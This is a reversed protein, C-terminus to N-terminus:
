PASKGPAPHHEIADRVRRHFAAECQRVDFHRSVRERAAEGLRARLAPDAALAALADALAIADSPQVLIGQVGDEIVEPVSGATTSAIACGAAMAELLATPVGDKDGNALEVGPAAYIDAAQLSQRVETATRRGRFKIVEELKHLAVLNKLQRYCAGSAADHADPEGLIDIAFALGRKRLVRAAEVLTALGKKPHIRSVSVIRAIHGPGFSLREGSPFYSTDIANSKVIASPLQQAALSELESKIRRSTAVIVNSTQLHLAVVKLEYDKLEHDSYCSIGRPIGLLHSAVLGFLTGEYFFYTHIYDAKWDEAMRTFSFAHRFHRHHYVELESLGSAESIMSVLAAVREPMCTEYYELDRAAVADARIMRRKMGWLAACEDALQRRSSLGTYAFRVEFDNSALALMERYVFTQSYVPFHWCAVALVRPKPRAGARDSISAAEISFRSRYFGDLALAACDRPLRAINKLQQITM